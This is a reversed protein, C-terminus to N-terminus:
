VRHITGRLYISYPKPYIFSLDRYVGYEIQKLPVIPEVGREALFDKGASSFLSARFM